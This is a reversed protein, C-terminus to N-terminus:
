TFCSAEFNGSIHMVFLLKHEDRAKDAAAERSNLFMVETGYTEGIPQRALPLEAPRAHRLDPQEV